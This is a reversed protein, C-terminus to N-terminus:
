EKEGTGPVSEVFSKFDTLRRGWFIEYRRLWADVARLPEANLSYRLERGSRRVVVLRSRKLMALHKSVAPRSIEPFRHAIAGANLSGRRLLDLIGRRTPDSIAAYPPITASM